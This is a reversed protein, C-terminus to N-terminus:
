KNLNYFYKEKASLQKFEAKTLEVKPANHNSFKNVKLPEASPEEQLDNLQKSLEVNEEQIELINEDKALNEGRLEDLEAKIRAIDGSVEQLLERVVAGVEEFIAAESYKAEEKEEKKTEVEDEEVVEEEEKAEGVELVVGNEDTTFETGDELAYNGAPLPTQVGDESLINLVTGEVLEDAESVIITGDALKNEYALTVTEQAETDLGLAVRIREKIDM